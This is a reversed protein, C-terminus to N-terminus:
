FRYELAVRWTRGVRYSLREYSQAYAVAEDYRISRRSDTLNGVALKLTAGKVLWALEQAMSLTVEHYSGTYQDLTNQSNTPSGVGVAALVSSQAYVSVTASFGWDPNDYSVDANAIWEPQDFLRRSTPLREPDIGYRPGDAGVFPGVVSRLQGTAPILSFQFYSDVFTAPVPVEAHILSANGGVSFHELWPALWGLPRRLELEIGKIEATAPNNFFSRFAISSGSRLLAQEVPNAVDKRFVSLAAVGADEFVYELRFDWSRVDVLKLNPNGLVIDGTQAERDFYPSLERFSPRAVTESYGGILKLAASPQWVLSIGPFLRSDDVEGRPDKPDVFGIIEGNTLNRGDATIRGSGSGLLQTLSAGGPGISDGGLASNGTATMQIREARVGGTVKFGAPLPLSLSLYGASIDQSVESESPFFGIPASTVELELLAAALAAPSDARVNSAVASADLVQSAGTVSRQASDFLGGARVQAGARSFFRFPYSVDLRGAFQDQDISRTIEQLFAGVGDNGRDVGFGPKIFDYVDPAYRLYNSVVQRPLDSTTTAYSAGWGIKMEGWGPVVHEGLLQWAVLQREEYEIQENYYYGAENGGPVGIVSKNPSYVGADPVGGEPLFGEALRRVTSDATQSVLLVASVRSLGDKDLDLSVSGLGGILVSRLSRYYELLGSPALEGSYLTGPTFLRPNHLPFGPPVGRSSLGFWDQFHGDMETKASSDYSLAVVYGLKRRWLSATDGVGAGLTLSLPPSTEPALFPAYVRAGGAPLNAALPGRKSKGSALADRSTYEPDRLFLERANTNFRYGLKFWGEFADPFQRTKLEFAAGSSNGPMHPLFSKNAVVAEMISTPFLDLQVGQRLPDPSPVPLGNVLTSSFRDSLGRVVAFKGEVVNVGPLKQVADALDTVAFRSFDDATLYDVTGSVSRRLDIFAAEQKSLAEASVTFAAMEFVDLDRLDAGERAAAMLAALSQLPYNVRSQEGARIDVRELEVLRYGAKFLRVSYPGVPLGDMRYRGELDTVATFTAWEQGAPPEEVPRLIVTVGALGAGTAEDILQGALSGTAAGAPAGWLSVAATLGLVLFLAIRM